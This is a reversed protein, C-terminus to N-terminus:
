VAGTIRTGIGTITTAISSALSQMMAISALALIGVILAYEVLDQGSDDAILNAVLTSVRVM